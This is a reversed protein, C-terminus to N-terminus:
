GFPNYNNLYLFLLREGVTLSRGFTLTTGDWTYEESDPSSDVQYVLSGERITALITTDNLTIPAFTTHDDGAAIQVYYKQVTVAKKLQAMTAKYLQGTAPDGLPMLRGDNMVDNDTLASLQDVRKSM